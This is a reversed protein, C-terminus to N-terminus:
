LWLNNAAQSAVLSGGGTFPAGFLGLATLGLGAIQSGTNNYIPTTQSGGTGSFDNIAGAYNRLRQWPIQEAEYQYRLPQYRLMSATPALGVMANMRLREQDYDKYRLGLESDMLWGAHAGSNYRGAGSFNANTGARSQGIITELYPNGSLYKGGLVDSAYNYANDELTDPRAIMEKWAEQLPDIPAGSQYRQLAASYASEDFTDRGPTTAWGSSTNFNGGDSWVRSGPIHTTYQERTPMSPAVYFSNLAQAQSLGQQRMPVSPAWPSVTSTQSGTKSGM